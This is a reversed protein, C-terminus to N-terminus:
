RGGDWLAATQDEIGDAHIQQFNRGGRAFTAAVGAPVELEAFPRDQWTCDRAWVIGADGDVERLPGDIRGLFFAGDPDRTWVFSGAPVDGFREVQRDRAAGIGVLGSALGYPAGPEDRDRARMPARYVGVGSM